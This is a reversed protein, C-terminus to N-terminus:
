YFCDVPMEARSSKGLYVYLSIVSTYSTPYYYRNYILLTTIPCIKSTVDSLHLTILACVLLIIWLFVRYNYNSVHFDFINGRFNWPLRCYLMPTLNIVASIFELKVLNDIFSSM